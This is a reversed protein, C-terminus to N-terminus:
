NTLKEYEVSEYFQVQSPSVATKDM